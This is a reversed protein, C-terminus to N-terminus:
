IKKAESIKLLGYEKKIEKKFIHFDTIMPMSKETTWEPNINHIDFVYVGSPTSNIYYSKCNYKLLKDYKYKEIMLENYHKRRCKLEIICRLNRSFCDYPSSKDKAKELDPIYKDKIYQFLEEEKQINM